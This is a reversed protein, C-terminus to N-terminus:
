QASRAPAKAAFGQIVTELDDLRMPGGRNEKAMQM